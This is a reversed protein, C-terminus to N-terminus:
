IFISHFSTQFTVIALQLTSDYLLFVTLEAVTPIALDVDYGIGKFFYFM